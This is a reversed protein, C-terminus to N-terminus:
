RKVLKFVKYGIFGAGALKAWWPIANWLGPLGFKAGLALDHNVMDTDVGAATKAAEDIASRNFGTAGSFLAGIRMVGTGLPSQALSQFITKGEDKTNAAIDTVVSNKALEGVTNTNAANAFFSMSNNIIGHLESTYAEDGEADSLHQYANSASTAAATFSERTGYDLSGVMSNAQSFDPLTGAATHEISTLYARAVDSISPQAEGLGELQAQERSLIGYEAGRDYGSRSSRM